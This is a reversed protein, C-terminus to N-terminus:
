ETTSHPPFGVKSRWKGARPGQACRNVEGHRLRRKQLISRPQPMNGIVIRLGRPFEKRGMDGLLSGLSYNPSRDGRAGDWGFEKSAVNLFARRPGQGLHFVRM